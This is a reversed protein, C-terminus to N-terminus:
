LVITKKCTHKLFQPHFKSVSKNTAISVLFVANYYSGDGFSTNQLGYNLFKFVIVCQFTSTELVDINMKDEESNTLIVFKSFYGPGDFFYVNGYVQTMNLRVQLKMGISTRIHVSFVSCDFLESAMELVLTLIPNRTRGDQKPLRAILEGNVDQFQEDDMKSILEDNLLLHNMDSFKVVFNRDTLQFQMEVFSNFQHKYVQFEIRLNDDLSILQIWKPLKGCFIHRNKFFTRAEM